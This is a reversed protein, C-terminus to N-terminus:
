KFHSELGRRFQELNRERELLLAHADRISVKSFRVRDGPCLQAAIPLDVTIVHAIKPYGGITQCDNLLLIPKGSPPVQVTGPAVAESLLDVDQRRELRPGDLRIGMRDSDPSVFFGEHDFLQIASEVFRDSDAGGLYRLVPAGRATSTWDHPPKWRAIKEIRLKEILLKASSPNEGLPFEEGDRVPRGRVGGFGARLDGSRSGLVVPVDIGGSIALWARCGGSPSGISFEEGVRVLVPHGAPSSTSGIRADFNGGGWVVIRDDAFRLRLGGFTIELGAASEENGALLNAARLAHADLAGGLSVGFERFGTRGLDQVSTLFGARVATANM